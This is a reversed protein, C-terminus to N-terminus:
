NPYALTVALGIKINELKLQLEGLPKGRLRPDGEERGAESGSGSQFRRQAWETRSASSGTHGPVVGVARVGAAAEGSALGRVGRPETPWQISPQTRAGRGGQGCLTRTSGWAGRHGESMLAWSVAGARTCVSGVRISVAGTNVVAGSRFCASERRICPCPVRPM